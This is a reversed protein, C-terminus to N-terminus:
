KPCSKPDKAPNAPPRSMIEGCLNQHMISKIQEPPFHKLAWMLKTTAAELSLDFGEIVGYDLAKLGVDYESMSTVGHLCQSMVVVPVSRSQAKQFVLYYDYPINGPGFGQIVIGRLRDIELLHDIDTPDCGPTLTLTCIDPEFGSKLEVKGSHRKPNEPSLQMQIRIEGADPVNISSFGDLASESTKSARAGRIIREDFVIYVGSINQIALKIANILNRRADTELVGAAIQAGTLVVPKGLNQLAFSLASATYAMSDTGHTIVFGDYKEYNEVVASAMQDWYQPHMNTSDINAVYHLDLDYIQELGPEISFLCSIAEDKNPAVLAGAANKQMILTGGCFLILIKPKKM